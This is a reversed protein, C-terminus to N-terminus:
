KVLLALTRLREYHVNGKKHAVRYILLTISIVGQTTYNDYMHKNKKHLDIDSRKHTSNWLKESKMRMSVADANECVLFAM